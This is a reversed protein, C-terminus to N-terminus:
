DDDSEGSAKDDYSKAEYDIKGVFVYKFSDAVVLREAFEGRSIREASHEGSIREQIPM